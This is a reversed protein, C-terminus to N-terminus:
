KSDEWYDVPQSKQNLFMKIEEILNLGRSLWRVENYYLVDRYECEIENLFEKFQRQNLGRSQIFNVAKEVKKMIHDFGLYKGILNQQHIICHYKM